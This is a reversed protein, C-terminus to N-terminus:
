NLHSNNGMMWRQSVMFLVGAAFLPLSISFFRSASSCTGIFISFILGLIMFLIGGLMRFKWAVWLCGVVLVDPLLHILFGLIKRGITPEDIFSDLSLMLLLGILLLVIIRPLWIMTYKM